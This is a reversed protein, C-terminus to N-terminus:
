KTRGRKIDGKFKAVAAELRWLEKDYGEPKQDDYGLGYRLCDRLHNRKKQIEPLKPINRFIEWFDAVDLLRIIKRSLLLKRPRTVEMKQAMM